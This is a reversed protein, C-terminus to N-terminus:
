PRSSSALFSLSTIPPYVRVLAPACRHDPKARASRRRPARRQRHARPWEEPVGAKRLGAFFTAEFLARNRPVVRSSIIAAGMSSYYGKGAVQRAEALAAAARETEGKLGYASALFAHVSPVEPNASRARELWPIAEDTRWQLLHM